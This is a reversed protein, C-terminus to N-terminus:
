SHISFCLPRRCAIETLNPTYGWGRADMWAGKYYDQSTLMMETEFLLSHSYFTVESTRDFKFIFGPRLGFSFFWGAEMGSKFAVLFSLTLENWKPNSRQKELILSHDM